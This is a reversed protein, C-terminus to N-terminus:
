RANLYASMESDTLHALTKNEISPSSSFLLLHNSFIFFSTFISFLTGQIMTTIMGKSQFFIIGNIILIPVPVYLSLTENRVDVVEKGHLIVFICYGYWVNLCLLLQLVHKFSRTYLLNLVNIYSGLLLLLGLFFIGYLMTMTISELFFNGSEYAEYFKDLYYMSPYLMISYVLWMLMGEGRLWRDKIGGLNYLFSAFVLILFCENTMCFLSTLKLPHYLLHTTYLDSSVYLFLRMLNFLFLIISLSIIYYIQEHHDVYALKQQQTMQYTYM